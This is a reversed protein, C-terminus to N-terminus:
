SGTFKPPRKERFATLGEQRDETSFLATVTEREFVIASELSMERGRDVLRKAAALAMPAMDSLRHSLELAVTVCDDAIQNVLGFREADSASMPEGTMLLFKAVGAPLLRSIRQTGAAGPMVGLKVEPLGLKAGPAAVRLDCSLAMELGGGLAFGNIAAIVPKPLREIRDYADTLRKVFRAFDHPTAHTDLEDIDAGASFARGAGTIVVARLGADAEILDLHEHLESLMDSGVANLRGPRDLTLLATRERREFHVLPQSM